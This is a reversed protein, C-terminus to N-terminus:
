SSRHRRWYLHKLGKIEEYYGHFKVLIDYLVFSNFLFLSHLKITSVVTTKSLSNHIVMLLGMYRLARPSLSTMGIMLGYEELAQLIWEVVSDGKHSSGVRLEV